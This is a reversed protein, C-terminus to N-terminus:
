KGRRSKRTRAFNQVVAYEVVPQPLGTARAVGDAFFSVVVHEITPFTTTLYSELAAYAAVISARFAADVKGDSLQLDTLPSVDNGGRGSRGRNATAFKVTCVDQPSGVESAQNGVAGVVLTDTPGTESSMDYSVIQNLTYGDSILPKIEANWWSALLGGLAVLDPANFDTDKLFWLTNIIDINAFDGELVAKAAKLTPIFAM